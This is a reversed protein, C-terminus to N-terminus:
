NEPRSISITEGDERSQRTRKGRLGSSHQVADFSSKRGRGGSNQAPPANPREGDGRARVTSKGTARFRCLVACDDGREERHQVNLIGDERVAAYSLSLGACACVRLTSKKKEPIGVVSFGWARRM